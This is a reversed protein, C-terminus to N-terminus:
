VERSRKEGVEEGERRINSRGGGKGNKAVGQMRRGKVFLPVRQQVQSLLGLEM